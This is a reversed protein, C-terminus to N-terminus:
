HRRKCEAADLIVNLSGCAFPLQDVTAQHKLDPSPSQWSSDGFIHPFTQLTCAAKPPNSPHGASNTVSTLSNTQCSM